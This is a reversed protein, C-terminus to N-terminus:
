IITIVFKGMFGAWEQKSVSLREWFTAVVLYNRTDCDTGRFSRVDLVISLWRREILIYDISQPNEM